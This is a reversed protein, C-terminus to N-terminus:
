MASYSIKLDRSGPLQTSNRTSLMTNLTVSGNKRNKLRFLSPPIGGLRGSGTQIGGSGSQHSLLWSVPLVSKRYYSM